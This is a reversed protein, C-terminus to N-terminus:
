VSAIPLETWGSIELEVGPVVWNHLCCTMAYKTLPLAKPYDELLYGYLGIHPIWHNQQAEMKLITIILAVRLAAHIQEIAHASERSEQRVLRTYVLTVDDYLDSATEM